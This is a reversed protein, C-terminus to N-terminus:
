VNRVTAKKNSKCTNLGLLTFFFFFGMLSTALFIVGLVLLVIGWIGGVIDLYYLVVLLAAIMTRIIRDATGMNQKM